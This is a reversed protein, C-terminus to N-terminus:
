WIVHKWINRDEKVLRTGSMLLYTTYDFEAMKAAMKNTVPLCWVTHLSDACPLRAEFVRARYYFLGCLTAYPSQRGNQPFQATIWLCESCYTGMVPMISDIDLARLEYAWLRWDATCRLVSRIEWLMYLARMSICVCVCICLMSVSPFGTKCMSFSIQVPRVRLCFCSMLIVSFICELRLASQKELKSMCATPFHLVKATLLILLCILKSRVKILSAPWVYM